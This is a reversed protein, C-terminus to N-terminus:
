NLIKLIDAVTEDLSYSAKWQLLEELRAVSMGFNRYKKNSPVFNFQLPKGYQALAVDSVLQAIAALTVQRGSGVNIVEPWSEPDTEVLGVIVAAADRVDIFDLKRRGDGPICADNFRM